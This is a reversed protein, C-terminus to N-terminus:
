GALGHKHIGSRASWSFNAIELSNMIGNGTIKNLNKLHSVYVILQTAPSIHPPPSKGEGWSIYQINFLLVVAALESKICNLM